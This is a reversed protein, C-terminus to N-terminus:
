VRCDRARRPRNDARRGPAPTTYFRAGRSAQQRDSRPDYSLKCVHRQGPWYELPVLLMFDRELEVVFDEIRPRTDAAAYKLQRNLAKLALQAETVDQHPPRACVIRSLAGDDVSRDPDDAPLREVLRELVGKLGLVSATGNQATSLVPLAEGPANRVDLNRLDGKTLLMLPVLAMDGDSLTSSPPLTFDVSIRRRVTDADRFTFTEIRGHGL